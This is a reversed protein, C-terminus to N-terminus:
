AKTHLLADIAAQVTAEPDAAPPHPQGRDLLAQLAAAAQERRRAETTPHAACAALLLAARATEGAAVWLQALYHALEAHFLSASDQERVQRAVCQLRSVARKL